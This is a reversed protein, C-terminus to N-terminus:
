LGLRPCIDRLGCHECKPRRALCVSRGHQIMRHSFQIWESQALLSMLNKEIKVADKEDTLGLRRALRGVHTDVVVGTPLHFATGLVVNATKRGVGPLAVLAELDRPM